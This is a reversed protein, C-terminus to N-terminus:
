RRQKGSGYGSLVLVELALAVGNHDNDSTIYDAVAQVGPMANGMAVSTGASALMALDNSGDGIAMVDSPHLEVADLYQLVGGWKNSGAGPCCCIIACASHQAAEITIQVTETGHDHSFSRQARACSFSALSLPCLLLM